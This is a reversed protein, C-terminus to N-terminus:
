SMEWRAIFKMTDSKLTPDEEYYWRGQLGKSESAVEIHAMAIGADNFGYDIGRFKQKSAKHFYVNLSNGKKVCRWPQKNSSSPGIRIMEMISAFEGADDKSMPINWDENYFLKQWPKRKHHQTIVNLLKDRTRIKNQPWGVPSVICISDSQTLPVQKQFDKVSYTGAMWCTGLGLQTAKLVVLEFIRGFERITEPNKDKVIGVLFSAAGSIFGYTGLKVKKLDSDILEIRIGNSSVHAIFDRLIKKHELSLLRQRDYNRVSKRKVITDIPIAYTM